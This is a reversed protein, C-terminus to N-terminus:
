KPLVSNTSSFPLHPYSPILPYFAVYGQSNPPIQYITADKYFIIKGLGGPYGAAPLLFCSSRAM